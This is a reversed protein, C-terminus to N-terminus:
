EHTQKTEKWKEFIGPSLLRVAFTVEGTRVRRAATTMGERNDELPLEPDYALMAALGQPFSRTPVVAVEKNVLGKAQEAALIINKNNPLVIVRAAKIRNIGAVLDETSPNMTQGGSVVEDAGLSKLVRVLGEGAAVAVVGTDKPPFPGADPPEGVGNLTEQHQDRMNDIKLHHMSGYSGTINLVEGPENTHIHIKAVQATGVVLVCDGLPELRQRIENLSLHEGQVVLETCYLFTIEEQLDFRTPLGAQGRNERLITDGYGAVELGLLSRYVGELILILGKGGADVVGAQALVPLMRPTQELTKEAQSLAFGLAESIRMGQNLGGQYGRAFAKAVTLITGEVPKMVAKYAVDVGGQFGRALDNATLYDKGEVVHSFGRLLQSLIVGSNGRAGMLAGMSLAAALEGVSQGQSKEMEKVAAQMTLWMNTGTDGDPVPFVNLANVEEKHAGLHGCGAAM